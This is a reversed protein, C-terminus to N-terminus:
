LIKSKVKKITPLKKPIKPPEEIINVVNDGLELPSSYIEGIGLFPLNSQEHDGTLSNFDIGYFSKSSTSLLNIGTTFKVIRYEYKYNNKNNVEVLQKYKIM